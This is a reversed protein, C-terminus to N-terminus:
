SGVPTTSTGPATAAALLSQRLPWSPLGGKRRNTLLWVPLEVDDSPLPGASILHWGLEGRARPRGRKAVRKVRLSDSDTM